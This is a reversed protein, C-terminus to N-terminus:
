LFASDIPSRMSRHRQSSGPLYSAMKLEIIFSLSAILPIEGLSMYISDDDGLTGEGNDLGMENQLPNINEPVSTCNSFDILFESLMLGYNDQVDTVNGVDQSHSPFGETVNFAIETRGNYNSLNLFMYSCLSPIIILPVYKRQSSDFDKDELTDNELDIIEVLKDDSLHRAYEGSMISNSMSLDIDVQPAEKRTTTISPYTLVPDGRHTDNMDSTEMLNLDVIKFSSPFLQKEQACKVGPEGGTPFRCNSVYSDQTAAMTVQQDPSVREELSSGTNENLNSLHLLEDTTNVMSPFWERPKKVVESFDSGETARKEGREKVSTSRGFGSPGLSSEQENDHIFARVPFSHSRVCKGQVSGYGPGGEDVDEASLVAAVETIESNPCNSDHSANALVDAASVNDVGDQLSDESGKNHGIDSIDEEENNPAQDVRSSRCSLTSRTKTPVNSFKSLTLLDSGNKGLINGDMASQQIPLDEPVIQKETEYDYNSDKIEGNGLNLNAPDGYGKSPEGDTEEKLLSSSSAKSGTEDPHNYKSLGSEIDATEESEPAVGSLGSKEMGDGVDNSVQQEECHESVTDSQGEMDPSVRNRDSLPGSRGYERGWDSSYGWFHEGRRRGKVHNRLNFDGPYRRRGLGTDSAGSGLRSHASTRGEHVLEEQQRFDQYDGVQLKFGGNQWKGSLASQPLSGKSVLYEAALRGAEMLIDGKQPPPQPPQRFSKPHGQGRGFGRNNFSGHESNYFGHGRASTDPSIRSGSVGVGMPGSRYGNGPSRHRAHM